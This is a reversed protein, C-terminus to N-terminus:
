DGESVQITYTYVISFTVGAVLIVLDDQLWTCLYM